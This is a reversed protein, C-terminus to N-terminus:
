FLFSNLPFKSMDKCKMMVEDIKDAPLDNGMKKKTVEEDLTGDEKM